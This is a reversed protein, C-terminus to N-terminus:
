FSVYAIRGQVASRGRGGGTRTSTSDQEPRQGELDTLSWVESPRVTDLVYNLGEEDQPPSPVEETRGGSGRTAIEHTKLDKWVKPVHPSLAYILLGIASLVAFASLPRISPLRDRWQEWRGVRRVAEWRIKSRLFFEFAQSPRVLSLRNLASRVQQVGYLKDACVPCIAEHEAMREATSPEVEGELYSSVRKEFERCRM